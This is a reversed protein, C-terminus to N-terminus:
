SRWRALDYGLRTQAGGFDEFLRRKHRLRCSLSFLGGSNCWAAPVKQLHSLVNDGHGKLTALLAGTKADWVRAAKDESITVIHDSDPSFTASLVWPDGVLTQLPAGTKANWLRATTDRAATVIRGGDPSFAASNFPGRHGESQL